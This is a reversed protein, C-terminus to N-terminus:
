EAKRPLPLNAAFIAATATLAAALLYAYRFTDTAKAVVGAAAPGVSQGFAFFLTITAFATAARSLGLYDAVAAALIAPIAFVALGYLVISVVLMSPGLKLGALLYAVTQVTFVLDAGM